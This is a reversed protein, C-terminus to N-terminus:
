KTFAKLPQKIILDLGLYAKVFHKSIGIGSGEKQNHKQTRIPTLEQSLYLLRLHLGAHYTTESSEAGAQKTSRKARILCDWM